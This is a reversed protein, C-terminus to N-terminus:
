QKCRVLRSSLFSISCMGWGIAMPLHGRVSMFDNEFFLQPYEVVLGEKKWATRDCFEDWTQESPFSFDLQGGCEVYIQKQISFGYLGNSYHEWLNDITQFDECPINKINELTLYSEKERDMVQIMLQYTLQDAEYWLKNELLNELERYDIGKASNLEM